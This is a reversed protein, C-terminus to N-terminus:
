RKKGKRISIRCAAKWTSSNAHSLHIVNACYITKSNNLHHPTCGWFYLICVIMHDSHSSCFGKIRNWEVTILKIRWQLSTFHHHALLISLVRLSNWNLILLRSKKLVLVHKCQVCFTHWTLRLLSCMPVCHHLSFLPAFSFFLCLYLNIWKLNVLVSLVNLVCQHCHRHHRRLRRVLLLKVFM